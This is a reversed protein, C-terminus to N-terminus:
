AKCRTFKARRLQEALLGVGGFSEGTVDFVVITINFPYYGKVDKTKEDFAAPPALVSLQIKDDDDVKWFGVAEVHGGRISEVVGTKRFVILESDEQGCQGNDLVWTGVLNENTLSEAGATGTVALCALAASCLVVFVRLM